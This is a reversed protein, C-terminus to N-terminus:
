SNWIQNRLPVLLEFVKYRYHKWNSDSDVKLPICQSTGCATVGTAAPVTLGSGVDWQPLTTTVEDKEYQSSRALVVVRVARVQRWLASTTPTVADYTDIVGSGTTDKGYLAKMIVVNSQLDQTTATQTALSFSSQRLRQDATVSYTLDVLTGLNVLYSTANAAKTPFKSANWSNADRKVTDVAPISTAQFGECTTDPANYVLALLDGAAVGLASKVMFTTDQASATQNPDYLPAKVPVSMAFNRKSSSLIRVTDSTGVAGATILVPALVPPAGAIASGGSQITFTCGTTTVDTVIGYGAMKLQREITYIALGGNIQADSGSTTTRRQNEANILVTAIALTILLGIAMGVMLEILTFGISRCRPTSTKM